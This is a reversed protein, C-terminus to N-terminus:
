CLCMFNGISLGGWSVLLSLCFIFFSFQVNTLNSVTSVEGFQKELQANRLELQSNTEKIQQLRQECLDAKQEASLAKMELIALQRANGTRSSGTPAFFLLLARQLYRFM